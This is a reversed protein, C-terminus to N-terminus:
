PNGLCDLVRVGIPTAFGYVETGIVEYYRLGLVAVGFYAPVLVHEPNLTFTATGTKVELFFIPSLELAGELNEFDFDLVGLTIGIHTASKPTKFHSANFDKITLQQTNWDFSADSYIGSLLASNRTFVYQKLLRKGRATQLGQNAHREGRRSVPDLDKMELFLQMMKSHFPKNKIGHFFPMLALRFQKKLRSSKGFESANERVRVFRPSTRIKEGNFGGGAKRLFGKGTTIFFNIDGITGSIKFIGRQRAM